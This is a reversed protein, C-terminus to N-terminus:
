TAAGHHDARERKNTDAVRVARVEDERWAREVFQGAPETRRAPTHPHRVVQQVTVQRRREDVVRESEDPQWKEERPNQQATALGFRREGHGDVGDDDRGRHGPRDNAIKRSERQDRCKEGPSWGAASISEGSPGSCDRFVM